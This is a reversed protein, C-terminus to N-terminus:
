APAVEPPKKLLALVEDLKGGLAGVQSSLKAQASETADLRRAVSALAAATAAAGEEGGDGGETELDDLSRVSRGM